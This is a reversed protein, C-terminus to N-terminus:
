RQQHLSKRNGNWTKDHAGKDDEEESETESGEPDDSGPVAAPDNILATIRCITSNTAVTCDLVATM